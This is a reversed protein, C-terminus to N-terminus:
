NKFSQFLQGFVTFEATHDPIHKQVFKSAKLRNIKVKFNSAAKVDSALIKEFIDSKVDWFIFSSSMSYINRM